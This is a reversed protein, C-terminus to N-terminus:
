YLQRMIDFGIFLGGPKDAGPANLFAARTGARQSVTTGPSNTFGFTFAHRWIKKQIGFAYAPRHIGLARGAVLTPIVEAVLAVTPRVDVAGGVGTSVTHHGPLDPIARSRYSGPQFLRRANLSFTPVFYVQARHTLSRSLILEFNEAFNKRFNGHGEVSFRVAANLPARDVESLLNYAATMQIPRAIFTPSRFVSVSFDKSVGYRLGFSSLSFGDLGLLANGRATGTFAPDFVFRHTFNLYLGHFDPRRGTPLTLLVDDGPKYVKPKQTSEPPQAGGPTQVAAPSGLSRVHAAAALIERESLKGAWTPMDIGATGPKGNKITTVIQDDTLTAQLKPDTFNPTHISAIGKGDPGHCGACRKQFIMAGQAQGASPRSLTAGGSKAPGAGAPPSGAERVTRTMLDVMYTKGNRRILLASTSGEIFSIGLAAPAEDGAPSTPNGAGCIGVVFASIAALLVRWTMM